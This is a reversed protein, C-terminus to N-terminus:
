IKNLEKTLKTNEKELKKIQNDLKKIMKDKENIKKDKQAIKDFLNHITKEYEKNLKTLTELNIAGNSQQM